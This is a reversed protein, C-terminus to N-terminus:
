IDQHVTSILAQSQKLKQTGTLQHTPPDSRIDAQHKFLEKHSEKKKAKKKKDQQFGPCRPLASGTQM